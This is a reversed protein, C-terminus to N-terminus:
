SKTLSRESQEDQRRGLEKFMKVIMVKNKKYPLNIIEEESLEEDLTKDQEKMQLISRQQRM